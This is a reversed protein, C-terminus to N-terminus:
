VRVGNSTLTLAIRVLNEMRFLEKFGDSTLVYLLAIRKPHLQSWWGRKSGRGHEVIALGEHFKVLGDCELVKFIAYVTEPHSSFGLKRMRSQVSYRSIDPHENLIKLIM